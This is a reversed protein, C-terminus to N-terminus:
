MIINTRVFFLFLVVAILVGSAIRLSWVYYGKTAANLFLYLLCIVILLGSMAGIHRALTWAQARQAAKHQVVLRHFNGPEANILLAERWVDGYPRPFKQVFRDKILYGRRLEQEIQATPVPQGLQKIQQYLKASANNIALDTAEDASIAPRPTQALIWKGTPNASVFAAFNDAWPKNSFSASSITQFDPGQAMLQLTNEQLSYPLPGSISKSGTATVDVSVALLANTQDPPFNWKNSGVAQVRLQPLRESLTQIVRELVSPEVNGAIKLRLPPLATDFKDRLSKALKLALARAASNITPYIDAEFPVEDTVQWAGPDNVAVAQPFHDLQVPRVEPPNVNVAVTPPSHDLQVPRVDPPYDNVVVAATQDKRASQYSFFLFGLILLPALIVLALIARGTSSLRTFLYILLAVVGVLLLLIFISFIGVGPVAGRGGAFAFKRLGFLLLLPLVVMLIVLPVKQGSKGIKMIILLVMGACILGFLVVIPEFTFFTEM